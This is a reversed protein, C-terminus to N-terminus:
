IEGCEAILVAVKPKQSQPLTESAEIMKVIKIGDIVRGFVVHQDDLWKCTACTIFFQCGNTDPGSNAMSLLGECEHHLSFDEDSFTSGYISFVGKGTSSICDGGQVMFGSIVRHFITGKYGISVGDKKAEGTCLQRFNECTKPCVDAFLEMTIRGVKKGGITIDFFVFPNNENPPSTFRSNISM